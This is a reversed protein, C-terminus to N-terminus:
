LYYDHPHRVQKIEKHSNLFTYNKISSGMSELYAWYFSDLGARLSLTSAGGFRPNCEIVFLNGQNSVIAQLIVHGYLNLSGIINKFAKELKNNNFTSTVQSEGGIIIDRRRMIIGKVNGDLTVYADVSIEDGTIFPQYLPNELLKGHSLSDNRDLNIGIKKAGAGFREKVVYRNSDIDGINDSAPIANIGKLQSFKLKDLCSVISEKNSIMVTVNEKKLQNKISSFFDLEGDRTPIILGVSNEKCFNVLIEASLNDIKPMEWFEDVFYKGICLNDSDSGFVKISPNIKNIGKIASQILPVKKSICTILVNPYKILSDSHNKEYEIIKPITEELGYEPSWGILSHLSEIDAESSEYLLNPDSYQITLEPFYQKIITVVDGVKRSRGTGLNVVGQKKIQSLRLLGKATDGAYIYDFIGEPNFVNLAKNGLADRIWRSIVDKSGKGYGRFIRASISTFKESKFNSLFDLEIEHGLKAMGTLNRPIIEHTENLRKPQEKPKSFNYLDKNYILYSSAFVVRRIAPVNRMLTMLHNSLKVNHWFNKEWHEYTEVSREFTAALHFFIEPNFSDIERQTLYNLDGQRYLIEKPFDDPIPLLDGVLVIANKDVLRKALERGIVGAGGSIFIRKNNLSIM